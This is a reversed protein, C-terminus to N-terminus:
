TQRVARSPFSRNSLMILPVKEHRTNWDSDDSFTLGYCINLEDFVYAMRLLANGAASWRARVTLLLDMASHAGMRNATHCSTIQSDSSLDAMRVALRCCCLGSTIKAKMHCHWRICTEITNVASTTWNNRWHSPGGLSAPSAKSFSFLYATFKPSHKGASDLYHFRMDSSTKRFLICSKFFIINLGRAYNLANKLLWVSSLCEYARCRTDTGAAASAYSRKAMGEM